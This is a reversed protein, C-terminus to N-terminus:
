ALFAFSGIMYLLLILQRIEQRRVMDSPRRSARSELPMGLGALHSAMESNDIKEIDSDAVLEM